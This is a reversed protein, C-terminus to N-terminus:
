LADKNDAVWRATRRALVALHETRNSRLREIPEDPLRRRLSITISRDELTAPIYGIGAVVVPGWVKFFRPEHNDGVTLICQGNRGHGSNLLSRMEENDKLFIDAEDILLTPQYKEMLRFVASKTINETRIPKPVLAAVTSLLTTKGCQKTPSA